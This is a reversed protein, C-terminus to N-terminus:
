VESWADNQKKGSYLHPQANDLIRYIQNPRVAPPLTQLAASDTCSGGVLDSMQSALKTNDM